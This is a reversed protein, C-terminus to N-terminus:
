SEEEAAKLFDKEQLFRIIREVQQQPEGFIMEGKKEVNSGRLLQEIRESALLSSDPPVVQRTRPCPSFVRTSIVTSPTAPRVPDRKRIPLLGLRRKNEFRPYRPIKPGMCASFVAPLDCEIIERKGRGSNREARVPLGASSVTVDTVRSVFPLGLHAALYPGIQGSQSDMSKEGCFILSGNLESVADALLLSKSWGDLSDNIDIQWLEDAGMGLCRRLDTEAIVPGLSLLLVEVGVLADKVCLALELAAEDHPNVCSVVDSDTIYNHAHDRGSRAFVHRIQKICVIIRM